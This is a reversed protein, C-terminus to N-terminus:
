YLESKELRRYPARVWGSGSVSKWVWGYGNCLPCAGEDGFNAGFGKCRPCTNKKAREVIMKSSNFVHSTGM